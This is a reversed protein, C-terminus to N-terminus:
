QAAETLSRTIAHLRKTDDKLPMEDIEIWDGRFPAWDQKLQKLTEQQQQERLVTHDLALWLSTNKIEPSLAKWRAAYLERAKSDIRLVRNVALWSPNTPMLSKLNAALELSEQVPMEEPLAVTVFATRSSDSFTEIMDKSDNYIPGGPFLAAFNFPTHIMTLAYGTSPMDVVVHDYNLREFWIKGLIVMERVGPAAKELYQTVKNGLFASYLAKLKLKLMIYERFCDSSRLTIQWLNPAIQELRQEEEAIQLVHVLLTRKGRAALVRSSAEALTTKGVGGKGMMLILNKSLWDADAM